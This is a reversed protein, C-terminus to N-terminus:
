LKLTDSKASFVAISKASKRTVIAAFIQKSSDFCMLLNNSMFSNGQTRGVRAIEDTVTGGWRMWMPRIVGAYSERKYEIILFATLAINQM